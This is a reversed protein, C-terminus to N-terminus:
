GLVPLGAPVVRAGERRPVVLAEFEQGGEDVLRTALYPRDAEPQGPVEIVFLGDETDPDPPFWHFRVGSLQPYCSAKLVDHYREPNITAKAVPRVRVALEAIEHTQQADGRRGGRLRGPRERVRGCRPGLEM